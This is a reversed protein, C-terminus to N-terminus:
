RRLSLTLAGTDDRHEVLHLDGRAGSFRGTGGIVALHKAAAPSALGQAVVQGGPLQISLVYDLQVSPDVRTILGSGGETGVPKGSRNTLVDSFVVYDGARYDGPHRQRPPVDVVDQPSFRVGFHLLQTPGPQADARPVTGGAAAIATAALAAGALFIGGRLRSASLYPLPTRTPFM